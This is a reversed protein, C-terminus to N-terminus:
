YGKRQKRKFSKTKGSYRWYWPQSPLEIPLRSSYENVKTKGYAEYLAQVTAILIPDNEVLAKKQEDTTTPDKLVSELHAVPSIDQLFNYTTVIM